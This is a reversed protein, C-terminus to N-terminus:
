MYRVNRACHKNIDSLCCINTFHFQNSSPLFSPHIFITISELAIMSMCCPSLQALDLHNVSIRPCEMGLSCLDDQGPIPEEGVERWPGEMVASVKGRGLTNSSIAELARCTRPGLGAAIPTEVLDPTPHSKSFLELSIREQLSAQLLCALWHGKGSSVRLTTM